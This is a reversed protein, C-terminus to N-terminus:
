AYVRGVPIRELSRNLSGKLRRRKPFSLPFFGDLIEVMVVRAYGSSLRLFINLFALTAAMTGNRIRSDSKLRSMENQMAHDAVTSLVVGAVFLNSMIKVNWPKERAITFCAAQSAPLINRVDFLVKFVIGIDADDYVLCVAAVVVVFDNLILELSQLDGLDIDFDYRRELRIEETELSIALRGLRYGFPHSDDRVIEFIRNIHNLRRIGFTHGFPMVRPIHLGRIEVEVVTSTQHVLCGNTQSANVLLM